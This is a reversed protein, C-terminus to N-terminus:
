SNKLKEIAEKAKEKDKGEFSPYSLELSELVEIMAHVAIKRALWPNDAPLVYWPAHPTSTNKLMDVFADQYKDWKDRDEIDSFSFEHNKEADELRELLREKQEDKSMNFFFKIVPFGNECLYKEFDNIQRYRKNWIDDEIIKKPLAQDDWIDNVKPSIIEEYYSRNLIGIQGREPLGKYMRWLYDHKKEEESPKGFSTNKLGQPLLHSFIYKIIEDKGAADLAQLVVVIGYEAQAFLKDHLEVLRRVENELLDEKVKEDNKDSIVSEEFKSLDVHKSDVKYYKYDM